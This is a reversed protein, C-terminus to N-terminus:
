IIRRMVRINQDKKDCMESKHSLFFWFMLAM